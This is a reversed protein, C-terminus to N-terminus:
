GPILAVSLAAAGNARVLDGTVLFVVQEAINTARDAIRELDHAVWLLHTSRKIKGPERGMDAFLKQCVQHYLVDVAEDDRRVQNAAAIERDAM